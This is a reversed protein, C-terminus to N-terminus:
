LVCLSSHFVSLYFISTPKTVQNDYDSGTDIIEGADFMMSPDLDSSDLNSFSVATLQHLRDTLKWLVNVCGEM